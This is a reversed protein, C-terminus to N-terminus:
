DIPVFSSQFRANDAFNIQILQRRIAKLRHRQQLLENHSQVLEVVLSEIGEAQFPFWSRFRSATSLYYLVCLQVMRLSGQVRFKATKRANCFEVQPRRENPFKHNHRTNKKQDHKHCCHQARAPSNAHALKFGNSQMRSLRRLIVTRVRHRLKSADRSRAM